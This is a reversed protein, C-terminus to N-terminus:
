KTLQNFLAVCGDYDDGMSLWFVTDEIKANVTPAVVVEGDVRVELVKGINVETAAAFAQSGEETLNFFIYNEEESPMLSVSHIHRNELWVKGSEDIFEVLVDASLPIDNVTDLAPFVSYLFSYLSCATLSLTCLICLLFIGIFRKM